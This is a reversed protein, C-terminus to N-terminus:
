EPFLNGELNPFPDNTNLNALFNDVDAGLNDQDVNNNELYYDINNAFNNAFNNALNNRYELQYRDRTTELEDIDTEDADDPSDEGSDSDDNRAVTLAPRQRDPLMRKNKLNPNLSIKTLYYSRVEDDEMAQKPDIEGANTILQGIQRYRTKKDGNGSYYMLIKLVVYTAIIPKLFIPTVKLKNFVNHIRNIYSNRDFETGTTRAYAATPEEDEEGALIIAYGKKHRKSSKLTTIGLSIVFDMDALSNSIFFKNRDRMQLDNYEELSFVLDEFEAYINTLIKLHRFSMPYKFVLMAKLINTSFFNALGYKRDLRKELILKYHKRCIRLGYDGFFSYRACNRCKESNGINFFDCFGMDSTCVKKGNNEHYSCFNEGANVCRLCYDNNKTLARCRGNNCTKKADAETKKTRVLKNFITKQAAHNLNPLTINENLDAALFVRVYNLAENSLLRFNQQVAMIEEVSAPVRNKALIRRLQRYVMQDIGEQDQDPNDPFNRPVPSLAIDDFMTTNSLNANSTNATNSANSTNSAANSANSRQFGPFIGDIDDDYFDGGDFGSESINRRDRNSNAM